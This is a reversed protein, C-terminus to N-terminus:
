LSVQGEVFRHWYAIIEVMCSLSLGAFCNLRGVAAKEVLFIWFFQDVSTSHYSM